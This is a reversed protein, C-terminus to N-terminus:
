EVAEGCRKLMDTVYGLERRFLTLREGDKQLAAAEMAAICKKLLRENRRLLPLWESPMASMLGAGLYLEKEDYPREDPLAPLCKMLVYFRGGDRVVREDRIRYGIDCVAARLVPIDSHASMILAAGNLRDRGRRLIGGATGGGMGLIFVADARRGGLADLADLGDSVAFTAREELGLRAILARAKSLAKESIDSILAHEARGQLLAAASLRGHDAGIDAFAGCKGLMDLAESLRADPTIPRIHSKQM